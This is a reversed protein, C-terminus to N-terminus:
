QIWAFRGFSAQICVCGSLLFSTSLSWRFCFVAAAYGVLPVLLCTLCPALLDLLGPRRLSQHGCLGFLLLCWLVAVRCLGGSAHVKGRWHVAHVGVWIAASALQFVMGVTVTFFKFM